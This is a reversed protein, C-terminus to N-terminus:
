WFKLKAILRAVPSNPVSKAVKEAEIRQREAELEANTPMVPMGATRGLFEPFPPAPVSTKCDRRNELPVTASVCVQIPSKIATEFVALQAEDNLVDLNIVDLGCDSCYRKLESEGELESFQKPCVFSFRVDIAM